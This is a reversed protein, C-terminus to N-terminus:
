PSDSNTLSQTSPVFQSSASCRRFRRVSNLIRDTLPPVPLSANVPFYYYYLLSLVCVAPCNIGRQKTKISVTPVPRTFGFFTFSIFRFIYLSSYPCPRLPPGSAEARSAYKVVNPKDKKLEPCVRPQCVCLRGRCKSKVDM